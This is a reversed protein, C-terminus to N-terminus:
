ILDARLIPKRADVLVALSLQFSKRCDCGEMMVDGDM